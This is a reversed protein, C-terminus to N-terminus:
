PRGDKPSVGSEAAPDFTARTLEHQRLTIVVVTGAGTLVPSGLFLYYNKVEATEDPAKGHAKRGPNGTVVRVRESPHATFGPDLVGVQRLRSSKGKGTQVACGATSFPQDGTNEVIFWEENLAAPSSAPHIERIILPM